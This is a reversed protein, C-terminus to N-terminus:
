FIKSHSQIIDQYKIALDKQKRKLTLETIEPIRNEM